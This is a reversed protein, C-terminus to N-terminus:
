RAHPPPPPPTGREIDAQPLRPSRPPSGPPEETYAGLEANYLWVGSHVRSPAQAPHHSHGSHAHHGHAHHAPPPAVPPAVPAALTIPPPRQATSPLHLSTATHLPLAAAAAMPLASSVSAARSPAEKPSSGGASGLRTPSPAARARAFDEGLSANSVRRSGLGEAMLDDLEDATDFFISDLGRGLFPQEADMQVNLLLMTILTYVLAAAYGAPCTEEDYGLATWSDCFHCFYPALIVAFLHILAGCSYRLM